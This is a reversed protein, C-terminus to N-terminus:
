FINKFPNFEPISNIEDFNIGDIGEKLYKKVGKIHGAGLIAVISNAPNELINKAIIKDREDILVKKLEPFYQSAMETFKELEEGTRLKEIDSESIFEITFISFIASISLLPMVWIPIANILRSITISADRDLLLLEIGKEKALEIGKLMEAGPKINFKESLRNQPISLIYTFIRELLKGEYISNIIDELNLDKKIKDSIIAKYRKDDLEIGIIDPNLENVVEYVDEASKKSVHATGILTIIKNDLEIKHINNNNEM